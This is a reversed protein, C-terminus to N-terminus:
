WAKAKYETIREELYEIVINLRKIEDELEQHILDLSEIQFLLDEIKKDSPEKKQAAPAVPKKIKMKKKPMVTYIYATTTGCVAAVEKYPAAPNAKIYELVKAKITQNDM